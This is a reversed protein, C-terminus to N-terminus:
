FSIKHGCKYKLDVRAIDFLSLIYFEFLFVNWFVKLFDYFLHIVRLNM